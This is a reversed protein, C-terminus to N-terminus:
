DFTSILEVTKGLRSQFFPTLPLIKGKTDYVDLVLEPNAPDYQIIGAETLRLRALKVGQFKDLSFTLKVGEPLQNRPSPAQQSQKVTGVATQKGAAASTVPGPSNTDM